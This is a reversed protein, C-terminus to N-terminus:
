TNVITGGNAHIVQGMVYSADDSALYVFAPAIESPQGPRKMPVDKGFQAVQKAPFSSPILPTWIPGPAVGNVRIKKSALNSSLARVFAMIAGKTASYDLLDARGQYATISTTCIISDGEHLHPLAAKTVRFQAYVNIDFTKLLDEERIQGIDEHQYQVAANNVLINLKGFRAVTDAVIQQCFALQRLDGSLTLCQRGEAEVLRKTEQADPEEEPTYVIAVDAGERAFHIAVARGIGSDGGTILAVKDKLKDSGVYLHRIYKPKPNMETELGPHQEQHQPKIQNEM